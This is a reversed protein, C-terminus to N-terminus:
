DRPSPSTYLLCRTDPEASLSGGLEAEALLLLAFSLLRTDVLAEPPLQEGRRGFATRARQAYPVCWRGGLSCLGTGDDLSRRAVEALALGYWRASTAAPQADPAYTGNALPAGLLGALLETTSTWELANARATPVTADVASAAAREALQRAAAEYGVGATIALSGSGPM